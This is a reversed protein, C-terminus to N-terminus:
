VLGNNVQGQPLLAKAVDTHPAKLVCKQTAADIRLRLQLWSEYTRCTIPGHHHSTSHNGTWATYQKDNKGQFASVLFMSPPLVLGRRVPDSTNINTLLFM